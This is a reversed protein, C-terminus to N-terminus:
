EDMRTATRLRNAKTNHRKLESNFTAGGCIVVKAVPILDRKRFTIIRHLKYTIYVIRLVYNKSLFHKFTLPDVRLGIKSHKSSCLEVFEHANGM